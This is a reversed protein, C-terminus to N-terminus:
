GLTGAYYIGTLLNYKAFSLHRTAPKGRRRDPPRTMHSKHHVFHRRLLNERLVEGRGIKIGGIEAYDGDAIM